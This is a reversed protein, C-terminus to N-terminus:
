AVAYAHATVRSPHGLLRQSVGSADISSMHPFHFAPLSVDAQNPQYADSIGKATRCALKESFCL